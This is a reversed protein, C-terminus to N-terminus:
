SAADLDLDSLKARQFFRRYARIEALLEELKTRHAEGPSAPAAAGDPPALRVADSAGWEVIRV